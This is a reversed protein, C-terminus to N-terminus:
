CTIQIVQQAGTESIHKCKFINHYLRPGLSAALQLFWTKRLSNFDLLPMFHALSSFLIWFHLHYDLGLGYIGYDVLSVFHVFFPFLFGFLYTMFFFRLYLGMYIRTLMFILILISTSMRFGYGFKLPAIEMYQSVLKKDLLFSDMPQNQKCILLFCSFMIIRICVTKDFM